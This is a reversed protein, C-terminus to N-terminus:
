RIQGKVISYGGTSRLKQTKDLEVETYFQYNEHLTVKTHLTAKGYHVLLREEKRLMSTYRCVAGRGDGDGREGFLIVRCEGVRLVFVLTNLGCGSGRHRRRKM